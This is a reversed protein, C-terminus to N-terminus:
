IVNAHASKQHRHLNCKFKFTHQCLSCNNLKSSSHVLHHRTLDSPRTAIYNCKNCAFERLSIAECNKRHQKFSDPNFSKYLCKECLLQKGAQQNIHSMIAPRSSRRIGCSSCIYIRKGNAKSRLPVASSPVCVSNHLSHDNMEITGCRKEHRKLADSNFFTLECHNCTLHEGREQYIHAQISARSVKQLGCTSCMYIRKGNRSSRIPFASQHTQSGGPLATTETEQFTHCHVHVDDHCSPGNVNCFACATETQKVTSSTPRRQLTSRSLWSLESVSSYAAQVKEVPTLKSQLHLPLEPPEALDKFVNSKLLDCPALIEVGLEEYISQFFTTEVRNM